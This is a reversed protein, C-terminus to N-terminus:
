RGTTAVPATSRKEALAALTAVAAQMQEATPAAPPPALTITVGSTALWTQVDKLLQDLPMQAFAPLAQANDAVRARVRRDMEEVTVKVVADSFAKLTDPDAGAERVGSVWEGWKRRFDRMVRERRQRVDMEKSYVIFVMAAPVFAKEGAKEALQDMRGISGNRVDVTLEKVANDLVRILSGIISWEHRTQPVFQAVAPLNLPLEFYWLGDADRRMTLGIPPVPKGDLLVAAQDDSLRQTTLREKAIDLFSFPDAFLRLSVDRFQQERARREADNQPQGVALSGSAAEGSRLREALQAAGEGTAAEKIQEQLKAVEAPFRAAVETGMEQLTGFLAGLRNLVSRYERSDAYILRPLKAADGNRVMALAAQVTDDPSAQSYENKKCGPLILASLLALLAVLTPASRPLM